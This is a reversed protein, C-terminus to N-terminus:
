EGANTRPKTGVLLGRGARLGRPLFRPVLGADQMLERLRRRSVMLGVETEELHRVGRSPEGVLYHIRLVSHHGRRSSHSLRVLVVSRGDHKMLHLFGPRFLAPDIWPEVIAVGGPKLHRAFNTFAVRLDHETALHGVAAFTCSVVDFSRDLRFTRMDARLLRVKPLRRRAVRLMEASGDVGVVSHERRLYELHRATGCAVDLWSRGGSRCYRRAVAELRRSEERYDKDEVFADYYKALEYFMLPRAATL